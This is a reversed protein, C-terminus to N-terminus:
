RRRQIERTIQTINKGQSLKSQFQSYFSQLLSVGEVNLDYIKWQNNILALKYNLAIPPGDARIVQSRIKVRKRGRFSSRMPYFKITEDQYANLASAYTSIMVNTFARSFAQQQAKTANKWASRGLVSRSMGALDAHPIVIKRVLSYVLRPNRRLRPRNQKLAALMQNSVSKVLVMPNSQAFVAVTFLMCITLIVIKRTLAKM